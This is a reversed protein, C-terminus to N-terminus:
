GCAQSLDTLRLLANIIFVLNGYAPSIGPVTFLSLFLYFSSFICSYSVSLFIFPLSTCFNGHRSLFILGLTVSIPALLILAIYDAFTYSFIPNEVLSMIYNNYYFLFWLWLVLSFYHSHRYKKEFFLYLGFIIIPCIYSM